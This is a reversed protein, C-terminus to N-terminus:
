ESWVHNLLQDCSLTVIVTWMMQDDSKFFFLEHLVSLEKKETSPSVPSLISSPRRKLHSIWTCLLVSESNKMVHSIRACKASSLFNVLWSKTCGYSYDIWYVVALFFFSNPWPDSQIPCCRLFIAANMNLFWIVSRRTKKVRSQRVILRLRDALESLFRWIM